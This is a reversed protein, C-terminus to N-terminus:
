GTKVRLVGLQVLMSTFDYIRTERTIRGDAVSQVFAITREIRKGSPPMGFIEGVHKSNLTCVLVAQAPESIVIDDVRVTPQAFARFLDTYSQEVQERGTLTSFLPSNVICDASYCDGLARVDQEQWALVFRDLLARIENSTM